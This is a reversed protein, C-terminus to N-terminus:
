RFGESSNLGESKGLQEGCYSNLERYGSLKKVIKFIKIVFCMVTFILVLTAISLFKFTMVPTHSATAANESHLSISLSPHTRKSKQSTLCITMGLRQQILLPHLCAVSWHEIVFFFKRFFKSIKKNNRM